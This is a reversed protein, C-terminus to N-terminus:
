SPRGVEVPQGGLLESSSSPSRRPRPACRSTAAIAADLSRGNPRTSNAIPISPTPSTVPRLRAWRKREISASSAAVGSCIARSAPSRASRRPASGRAARRRRLHARQDGVQAREPQAELLLARRRALPRQGALREHQGARQGVQRALLRGLPDEGGAPAHRRRHRLLGVVDDGALAGPEFSSFASRSPTGTSSSAPSSASSSPATVAVARAARVAHRRRRTTPAAGDAHRARRRRRTTPRHRRRAPRAHGDAYRRDAAGDTRSRRPAAPASATRSSRSRSRTATARPCYGALASVDTLTGTKARCRGRRRHRAHPPSRGPAGPSPLSREFADVDRSTGDRRAARVVQARRPATPARSARATSSRPASGSRARHTAACSPPAPRADHRRRRLARRPGQAADRRLLQGVPPQDRAVLTAMPPSHSTPSSSRPATPRRASAQRTRGARRAVGARAAAFHALAGRGRPAPGSPTRAAATARGARRAVGGIDPDYRAAPARAAAASDFCRSTASSRAPRRPAIGAAARGALALQAALAPRRGLTPDGGGVLYLDGDCSATPTSAAGDRGAVRRADARRRRRLPLLATATTYLKEVSAPMRARTPTAAFCRRRRDTLDRSTAARPTRRMRRTSRAALTASSRRPASLPRGRARALPPLRRAARGRGAVCSVDPRRM